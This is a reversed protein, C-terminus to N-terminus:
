GQLIGKLARNFSWIVVGASTAVAAIMIFFNM